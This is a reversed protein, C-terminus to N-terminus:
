KSHSPKKGRFTKFREKEFENEPNESEYSALYLSNETFVPATLLYNLAQRDRSYPCDVQKWTIFETIQKALQWFKDFNVHGNAIKNACGENLFYIDKVLLSFFPIVIRDCGGISAQSRQIAARLSQRYNSFNSTPDMLHELVEFKATNVKAWTKKLRSVPCMNLGALIAMLSNFNGINFSEKAVDIFYEILRARHKKKIHMCVETAVFYSLRNFWEVYAELNNTKKIDQFPIKIDDTEKKMFAQVFEEPGINTLRELEIHTLQQAMIYPDPCIEIVNTQFAAPNARLMHMRDAAAANVKALIEEYKELMALRRILTQMLQGISKRLNVDISACKQTIEKLHRMMREDRFDYPFTETWESLLLVLNPGFRSFQARDIHRNLLNQQLISLECVEQLLEYPKMFLRSCLLFAFIYTRDPYYDATPVIHQILAEISGSFLNGDHYILANCDLRDDEAVAAHGNPIGGNHHHYAFMTALNSTQPLSRRKTADKSPAKEKTITGFISPRAKSTQKIGIHPQSRQSKVSRNYHIKFVGMANERYEKELRDHQVQLRSFYQQQRELERHRDKAIAEKHDVQSLDRKLASLRRREAELLRSTVEFQVGFLDVSQEEVSGRRASTPRSGNFTLSKRKTPLM